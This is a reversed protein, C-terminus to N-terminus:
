VPERMGQVVREQTIDFVFVGFVFVGACFRVIFTLEFTIKSPTWPITM